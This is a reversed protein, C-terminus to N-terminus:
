RVVVLRETRQLGSTNFRAFYLGAPVQTGDENTSDWRERWRGADLTGSAISKVKRGALDYIALDVHTRQPLDFGLTTTGRTPNPSPPLFALRNPVGDGVGTPILATAQLHVVVNPRALGGPLVEDTSQFTLNATYTTNATMGTSDCTVSWTQGDTVLGPTFGGNIAFRAADPGTIAASTLNLRSQLADYGRNLLRLERTYAGGVAPGFRLTDETV